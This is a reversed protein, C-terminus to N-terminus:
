FTYGLRITAGNITTNKSIESFDLGYDVGVLFKGFTVNTGIHWGIQFRNWTADSSGMDDKDFVNISEGDIEEVEKREYEYLDDWDGEFNNKTTGVINFRFHFGTYPIISVTSNPIDFKYAINVPVKLSIMNFSQSFDLNKKYGEISYDYNKHSYQLGGGVELFLPINQSLGFTRSYGLSFGLFSESDGHKPSFTSPNIEAYVTNWGDSVAGGGASSANTFQANANVGVAMLAATAFLKIKKM